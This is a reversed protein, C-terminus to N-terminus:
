AVVGEEDEIFHVKKKRDDKETLKKQGDESMIDSFGEQESSEDGMLEGEEVGEGDSFEYDLPKYDVLGKVKKEIGDVFQMFGKGFGEEEVVQNLRRRKRDNAAIGLKRELQAIERDLNAKEIENSRLFAAREPTLNM